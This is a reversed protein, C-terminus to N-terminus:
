SRFFSIFPCPSSFLSFYFSPQSTVDPQRFGRACSVCQANTQMRACRVDRPRRGGGGDDYRCRRRRRRRRRKRDEVCQPDPTLVWTTSSHSCLSCLRSIAKGAAIPLGRTLPRISKRRSKEEYRSFVNGPDINTHRRVTSQALEGPSGRRAMGPLSWDVPPFAFITRDRGRWTSNFIYMFSCNSPM